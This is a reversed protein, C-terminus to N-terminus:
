KVEKELIQRLIEIKEALEKSEEETLDSPLEIYTRILISHKTPNCTRAVQGQRNLILESDLNIWQETINNNKTDLKLNISDNNNNNNLTIHCLGLLRDWFQGREWLEIQLGTSRNPVDSLFNLFCVFKNLM